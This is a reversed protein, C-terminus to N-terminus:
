KKYTMSGLITNGSTITGSTSTALGNSTVYSLFIGYGLGITKGVVWGTSNAGSNVVANSTLNIAAQNGSPTFPLSLRFYTSSVTSTITISFDAHVLDGIVTYSGTGADYDTTGAINQIKPTWTGEEYLDLTVGTAGFKIGNDFLTTSSNKFHVNTSAITVTEVGASYISVTDSGGGIGGVNFTASSSDYAIGTNGSAGDFVMQSATAIINSSVDAVNTGGKTLIGSATAGSFSIGTDVPIAWSGDKRLFNNSHDSDGALVLGAAYNNDSSMIEYTTNTPVIWSGDGRLFTTASGGTPVHGVNSGGDYARSTIIVNGSNPLSVLPAGSSLTSTVASINVDAVGSVTAGRMSSIKVQKTNNKDASDSILVLDDDVPSVKVPYTYIIAM